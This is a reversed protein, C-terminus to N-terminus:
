LAPPRVLKPHNPTIQLAPEQDRSARIFIVEAASPEVGDRGGGAPVSSWQLNPLFLFDSTWYKQCSYTFIFICTCSWRETKSIGLGLHQTILKTYSQVTSNNHKPTRATRNSGFFSHHDVCSRWLNKCSKPCPLNLSVECDQTEGQLM